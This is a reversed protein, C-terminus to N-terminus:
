VGGGLLMGRRQNSGDEVILANCIEYIYTHIHIYTQGDTQRDTRKDNRTDCDPIINFDSLKHNLIM